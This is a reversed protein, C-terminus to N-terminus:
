RRAHARYWAELTKVTRDASVREALGAGQIEVQRTDVDLILTVGPADGPYRRLAMSLRSADLWRAEDASWDSSTLDLLPRREGTRMVVPSEIWHSMRVEQASFAVRHRGDPSVVDQM